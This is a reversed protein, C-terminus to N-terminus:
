CWVSRPVAGCWSVVTGTSDIFSLLIILSSPVIPTKDQDLMDVSSRRASSARRSSSGGLGVHPDPVLPVYLVDACTNASINIRARLVIAHPNGRIDRRVELSLAPGFLNMKIDCCKPVPTSIAVAKTCRRGVAKM